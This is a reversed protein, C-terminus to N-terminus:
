QWSSMTVILYDAVIWLFSADNEKNGPALPRILTGTNYWLWAHKACFCSITWYVWNISIYLVFLGVATQKNELISCRAPSSAAASAHELLFPLRLRNTHFWSPIHDQSCVLANPCWKFYLNSSGVLHPPVNILDGREIIKVCFCLCKTVIYGM